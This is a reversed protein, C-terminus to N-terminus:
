QEKKTDAATDEKAVEENYAFLQSTLEGKVAGVLLSAGLCAPVLYLLAPQAAKFYYMVAVTAVLGLAYFVLNTIFYPKAFVAYEAANVDIKALKADLRILLAM